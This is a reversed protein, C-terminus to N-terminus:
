YGMEEETYRSPLKNIELIFTVLTLYKSYTDNIQTVKPSYDITKFDWKKM